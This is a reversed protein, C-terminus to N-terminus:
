LIGAMKTARAKWTQMEETLSEIKADLLRYLKLQEIKEQYEM